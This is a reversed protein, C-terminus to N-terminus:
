TDERCVFFSCGSLAPAEGEVESVGEAGPSECSLLGAAEEADAAVVITVTITGGVECDESLHVDVDFPGAGGPWNFSQPGPIAYCGPEAGCGSTQAHAPLVISEVVPRSWAVPLTVALSQLLRRRSNQTM